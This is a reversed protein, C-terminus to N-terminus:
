PRWSCVSLVSSMMLWQISRSRTLGSSLQNVEWPQSPSQRVFVVARAMHTMDSAFLMPQDLPVLIGDLLLKREECNFPPQKIKSGFTKVVWKKYPLLMRGAGASILVLEGLTSNILLIGGALLNRAELTENCSM